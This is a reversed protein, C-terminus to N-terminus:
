LQSTTLAVFLSIIPALYLIFLYNAKFDKIPTCDAMPPFEQPIRHLVAQSNVKIGNVDYGNGILSGGNTVTITGTDSNGKGVPCGGVMDVIYQYTGSMVPTGSITVTNSAWSAFVGSPLGRVRAGTAGLTSYTINTMATNRPVSQNDSGTASSLSITNSDLVVLSVSPQLQNTTCGGTMQVVGNYTFSSSPTGSITFVGTGPNFSETLGSNSPLAPDLTVGTAGTTTFVIPQIPRLACRTQINTVVDPTSLNPDKKGM